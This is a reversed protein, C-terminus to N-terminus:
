SYADVIWQCESPHVLATNAALVYVGVKNTSSQRMAFNAIIVFAQACAEQTGAAPKRTKRLKPFIESINQKWNQRIGASFQSCQSDSVKGAVLQEMRALYHDRNKGMVNIAGQPDMRAADALASFYGYVRDCNSQASAQTPLFLVGFFVAALGLFSHKM